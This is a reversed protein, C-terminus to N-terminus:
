SMLNVFVETLEPDFQEGAYAQLEIIASEKSLAERYVRNETMADFADAISLIRSALPIDLGKLGGPYGSGDWREHHRLILGAIHQLEPTAMAIRYGIESHKKMQVWEDSTLQGPKKLIRDDIGVKGIDHLMSLLELDDLASQGLGIQEGIMKTLQALRRGHEETENSRAYLTAM